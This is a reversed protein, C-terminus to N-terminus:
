FTDNKAEKKSVKKKDISNTSSLKRAIIISKKPQQVPKTDCGFAGYHDKLDSISGFRQGCNICRPYKSAPVIKLPENRRRMKADHHFFEMKKLYKERDANNQALWDPEYDQVEEM